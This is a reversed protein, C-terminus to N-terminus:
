RAAGANSVQQAEIAYNPCLMLLLQAETQADAADFWRAQWSDNTWIVETYEGDDKYGVFYHPQGPHLNTAVVLHKFMVPPAERLTM